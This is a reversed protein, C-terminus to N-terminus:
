DRQSGSGFAKTKQFGYLVIKMECNLLTIRLYKRAKSLNSGTCIVILHIWAFGM